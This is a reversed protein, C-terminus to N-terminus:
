KLRIRCLEPVCVLLALHKIYMERFEGPAKITSIFRDAFESTVLSPFVECPKNGFIQFAHYHQLVLQIDLYGM